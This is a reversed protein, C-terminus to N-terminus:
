GLNGRASRKTAQAQRGKAVLTKLGTNTSAEWSDLLAIVAANGAPLRRVAATGATAPIAAPPVRALAACVPEVVDPNLEVLELAATLAISAPTRLVRELLAEIFQARESVELAAVSPYHSRRSQEVDSQVQVLLQQLHPALRSGSVGFSLKDRSYTFYPRLDVKKLSPEARLWGAIHPKDAWVEAEGPPVQAARSAGDKAPKATDPEATAEQERISRARDEAIVVEDCRGEAAVEWDFLKQFDTNYQDELVMLKALVPLELQIKRRAASRHKLLLNNLFRKLQRPNGRLSSGLIPTIEAAWVLDNTLDDPIDEIAEGAIGTNFAVSLGGTRRNADAAELAEVFQEPTLHLEAFLLNVYTEAEPASLPPIAIKLQLMKELYDRGIGAGDAKKLEPYRSDIAAEVVNQNLALVYATKETNLFLRIAEFTDVVTDPLCRDLDDIFVIVADFPASAVLAGFEKRFAAIDSPATSSEEASAAAAKPEPESLATGAERAMAGAATTVVGGFVPDLGPAAANLVVPVVAPTLTTGVRGARRGWRRLGALFSRLRGVSEAAGPVHTQLEDLVATMLAVKVDEYDEHQWPSFQITLYAPTQQEGDGDTGPATRKIKGLEGEALGILSSKGSGWDGLVGVTVPLLRPETLAVVLGDVLYGFGLLDLDAENDAWM